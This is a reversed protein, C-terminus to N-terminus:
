RPQCPQSNCQLRGTTPKEKSACKQDNAAYGDTGMCTATVVQYGGACEESCM